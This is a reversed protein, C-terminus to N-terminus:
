SIREFVGTTPITTHPVYIVPTGTSRAIMYTCQRDVFGSAEGPPVGYNYGVGILGNGIAGEPTWNNGDHYQEWGVFVVVRVQARLIPKSLSLQSSWKHIYYKPVWGNMNDFILAGPWIVQTTMDTFTVTLSEITVTGSRAGQDIGKHSNRGMSAAWLTLAITNSGGGVEIECTYRNTHGENWPYNTLAHLYERSVVINGGVTDSAFRPPPTGVSSMTDGLWGTPTGKRSALFDGGWGPFSTLTKSVQLNIGFRSVQGQTNPM